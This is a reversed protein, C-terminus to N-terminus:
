RFGFLQPNEKIKNIFLIFGSVSVLVWLGIM